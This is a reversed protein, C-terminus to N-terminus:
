NELIIEKLTVCYLDNMIALRIEDDFIERKNGDRDRLSLIVEGTGAGGGVNVEYKIRFFSESIEVHYNFDYMQDSLQILIEDETAHDHVFMAGNCAAGGVDVEYKIEKMDEIGKM